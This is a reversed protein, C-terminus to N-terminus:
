CGEVGIKRAASCRLALPKSNVTFIRYGEGNSCKASISGDALRKASSVKPCPHEAEKIVRTAVSKPNGVPAPGTAQAQVVGTCALCTLFVYQRCFHM